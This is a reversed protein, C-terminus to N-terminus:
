LALKLEFMCEPNHCIIEKPEEEYKYSTLKEMDVVVYTVEKLEFVRSGCEPCKYEEMDLQASLEEEIRDCHINGM